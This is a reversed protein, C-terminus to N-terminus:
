RGANIDVESIIHATMEPPYIDALTASFFSREMLGGTTGILSGSAITVRLLEGGIWGTSTTSAGGSSGDAPSLVYDHSTSTSEESLKRSRQREAEESGQTELGAKLDYAAEYDYGQDTEEDAYDFAGLDYVRTLLYDSSAEEEGDM